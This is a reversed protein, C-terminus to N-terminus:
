RNRVRNIIKIVIVAALFGVGLAPGQRRLVTTVATRLTRAAPESLDSPPTYRYPRPPPPPPAAAPEEAPTALAEAVTDPEVPGDIEEPVV